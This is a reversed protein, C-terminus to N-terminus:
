KKERIRKTAEVFTLRMPYHAALENAAPHEYERNMFYFIYDNKFSVTSGNTVPLRFPLLFRYTIFYASKEEKDMLDHFVGKIVTSFDIDENIKLYDRRDKQVKIKVIRDAIDIFITYPVKENIALCWIVMM